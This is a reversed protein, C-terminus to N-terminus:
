EKEIATQSRMGFRPTVPVIRARLRFQHSTTKKAADMTRVMMSIAYGLRRRDRPDQQQHRLKEYEEHLHVEDDEVFRSVHQSSGLRLPRVRYTRV